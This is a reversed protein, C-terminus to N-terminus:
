NNRRKKTFWREMLLLFAFHPVDIIVRRWLRKPEQTFRWLWEIGHDGAWAPARNVKGSIFKFAAGVGVAVPVNLKDRHEYMWREQRPLGLGIWVVDANSDNIIRIIEEDEEPTLERFPPSYCGAIKLNPLEQNLRNTLASLTDDTDGYFFCSYGKEQALECFSWMLDPGSARRKLLYGKRRALWVVSFGDPVFLDSTEVVTQFQANKQAEMIGHMGSAVIYHHKDKDAIWQEMVSMVDPIELPNVRVGLIRFSPVEISAATV